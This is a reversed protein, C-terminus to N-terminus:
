WVGIVWPNGAGGGLHEDSVVGLVVLCRSGPAPETGEHDHDTAEVNARPWPAPGYKLRGEDGPLWPLTFYMRGDPAYSHVRGEVITASNAAGSRAKGGALAQAVQRPIM